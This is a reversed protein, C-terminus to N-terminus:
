QEQESAPGMPKPQLEARSCGGGPALLPCHLMVLHKQLTDWCNPSHRRLRRQQDGGPQVSNAAFFHSHHNIHLQVEHMLRTAPHRRAGPPPHLARTDPPNPRRCGGARRHRLPRGAAPPPAALHTRVCSVPPVRSVPCMAPSVPHRRSVHPPTTDPLTAPPDCTAAEATSAPHDRPGPQRHLHHAISGQGGYGGGVQHWM